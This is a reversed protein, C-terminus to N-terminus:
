KLLQFAVIILRLSLIRSWYHVIDQLYLGINARNKMRWGFIPWYIIIMWWLGWTLARRAWVCCNQLIMLMEQGIVQEFCSCDVEDYPNPGQLGLGKCVYVHQARFAWSGVWIGPLFRPWSCMAKPLACVWVDKLSAKLGLLVCNLFWPWSAKSQLAM